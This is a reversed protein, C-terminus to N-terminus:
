EPWADRCLQADSAHRDAEEAVRQYRDACEGFVALAADATLRAAEATAASLQGRLAGITDRLGASATRAADADARLKQERLNSANTAEQLKNLLQQEKSRNILEAASAARQQVITAADWKSQVSAAGDARGAAYIALLCLAVAVAVLVARWPAPILPIPNM